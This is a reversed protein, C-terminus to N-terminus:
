NSYSNGSAKLIQLIFYSFAKIAMFQNNFIIKTLVGSSL